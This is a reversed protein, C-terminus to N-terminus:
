RRRRCACRRRRGSRPLSCIWMPYKEGRVREVRGFRAELLPEVDDRWRADKTPYYNVVAVGGPAVAGAIEDVTAALDDYTPQVNLVNAAYVLDYKRFLAAPDHVGPVRNAAIDHATVDFGLARIAAAHRAARGAGFDLITRPRLTGAALLEAVVRVVAPNHGIAPGDRYTANVIRYYDPSRLM